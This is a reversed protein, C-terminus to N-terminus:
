RSTLLMSERVEYCTPLGAIFREYEDLMYDAMRHVEDKQSGAIHTTLYLNPLTYFRSGAPPPEPNTVDIVATLDPRAELVDLLAEEDVQAGRGTNIFVAGPLMSEFMARTLVRQNDARNPLHNSVVMSTRFAEEFSTTRREPRSPIIECQIEHPKLFERTKQAIAGAGLLSVRAGYCGVGVYAREEEPQPYQEPGTYERRNRLFGKLGLLIHAATFEAVPIANAQWASFVRIGREHFARFFSDTAGAAYFVAQLEPMADFMEPTPSFMGWTSFVVEIQRLDCDFFNKESVIEPFLESRERLRKLRSEGFVRGVTAPNNCFIACKRM